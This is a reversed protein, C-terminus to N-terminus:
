GPIAGTAGEPGAVGQPGGPIDVCATGDANICPPPDASAIPAVAIAAAAAGAFLMPTLKTLRAIM